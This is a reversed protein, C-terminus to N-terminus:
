DQLKGLCAQQKAQLRKLRKLERESGACLSAWAKDLRQRERPGEMAM